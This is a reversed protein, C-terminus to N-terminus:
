VFTNLTSVQFACSMRGSSDGTHKTGAAKILPGTATKIDKTDVDEALIVIEGFLIAAKERQELSGNKLAAKYVKWLPSLGQVFHWM